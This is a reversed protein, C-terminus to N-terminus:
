QYTLPGRGAGAASFLGGPTVIMTELTPVPLRVSEHFPFRSQYEGSEKVGGRTKRHRTKKREALSHGVM